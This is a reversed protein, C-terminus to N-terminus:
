AAEVVAAPPHPTVRPTVNLMAVHARIWVGNLRQMREETPRGHLSDIAWQLEDALAKLNECKEVNSEVKAAERLEMLFNM